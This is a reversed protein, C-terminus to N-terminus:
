LGTRKTGRLYSWDIDSRMKECLVSGGTASEIQICRDAPIQKKGVSWEHVTTTSVDLTRALAAATGRKQKLYALLEM